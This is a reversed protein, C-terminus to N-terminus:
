SVRRLRRAVSTEIGEALIGLGDLLDREGITLPCLVKVVEGQPGSTEVVLGRELAHRTVVRAREGSPLVIGQMLGRGRVELDHRRAQQQLVDQVLQAKRGVEATLRGDAWFFELAAAATVFAHNNGRFTGNHEGPEWQDLDPRILTVALPLGMGSLSKSLTVLDPRIGAPEFSFFTGTRGCGAQIDDVILLIGRKRCISELRRLWAPSAANLGGEGQVTEVIAAAPADLGSSNDDLLKELYGLTDMREGLYNAYPARFAGSLSAGAVSRHHRNGTLALAGLSVGHFGNTFSVVTQRGTVKRAIKLAAEVANTGTPGPFMVRYDLGRPQLVYRALATLFQGKAETHLDLSHTIGDVALYDLLKQKLYPHNHGYNLSGAGSLFDLYANGESDFVHAGRGKSFTVPIDRAYSRVSSELQDFVNM